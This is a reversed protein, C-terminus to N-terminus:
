DRQTKKARYARLLWDSCTIWFSPCLFLLCVASLAPFSLNAEKLVQRDQGIDLGESHREKSLRADIHKNVQTSTVCVYTTLM